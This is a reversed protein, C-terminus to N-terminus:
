LCSSPCIYISLSGKLIKLYWHNWIKEVDIEWQIHKKRSIKQIALDHPDLSLSCKAGPLFNALKSSDCRHVVLFAGSPM